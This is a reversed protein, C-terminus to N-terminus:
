TFTYTNPHHMRIRDWTALPIGPHGGTEPIEGALEYEPDEEADEWQDDNGHTTWLERMEALRKEDDDGSNDDGDSEIGLLVFRRDPLASLSGISPTYM